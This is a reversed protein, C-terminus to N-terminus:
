HKFCEVMAAYIKQLMAVDYEACKGIKQAGDINFAAAVNRFNLNPVKHRKDIFCYAALNNVDVWHSHFWSGMYDDGLRYFWNALFDYHFKQGYVIVTFKDQPAYKDVYKEMINRFEVIVKNPDPLRFLEQKDMNSLVIAKADVRVDDFPAMKFNFSKLKKKGRYILGAMQWIGCEFPDLGTTKINLFMLKPTM